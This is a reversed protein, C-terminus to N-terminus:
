CSFYEAHSVVGTIEGSSAESSLFLYYYFASYKSSLQYILDLKQDGDLDGAFLLNDEGEDGCIYSNDGELPSSQCAYLLQEKDGQKLVFRMHGKEDKNKHIEYEQDYLHIQLTPKENSFQNTDMVPNIQAKRINYPKPLGEVFLSVEEEPKSKLHMLQRYSFYYQDGNKAHTHDKLVDFYREPSLTKPITFRENQPQKLKSYLLNHDFLQDDFEISYAQGDTGIVDNLYDLKLPADAYRTEQESYPWDLIEAVYDFRDNKYFQSNPIYHLKPKKQMFLASADEYSHKAAHSAIFKEKQKHYKGVSSQDFLEQFTDMHDDEFVHQAHASGVVFFCFVFAYLIKM